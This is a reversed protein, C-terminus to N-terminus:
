ASLIWSVLCRRVSHKAAALPQDSCTRIQSLQGASYSNQPSNRRHCPRQDDSEASCALVLAPAVGRLRTVADCHYCADGGRGAGVGVTVVQEAQADLVLLVVRAQVGVLEVEHALGDGGVDACPGPLLDAEYLLHAAGEGARGLCESTTINGQAFSSGARLM